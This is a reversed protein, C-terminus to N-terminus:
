VVDFHIHARYKKNAKIFEPQDEDKVIFIGNSYNFNPISFDVKKLHEITNKSWYNIPYIGKIAGQIIEHPDFMWIDEAPQIKLSLSGFFSKKIKTESVQSYDDPLKRSYGYLVNFLDSFKAIVNSFESAKNLAFTCEYVHINKDNSFSRGATSLLIVNNGFADVVSLSEFDENSIEGENLFNRINKEAGFNISYSDPQFCVFSFLSYIWEFNAVHKESSSFYIRVLNFYARKRFFVM